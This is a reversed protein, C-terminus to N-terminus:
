GGAAVRMENIKVLANAFAEDVSDGYGNLYIPQTTTEARIRVSWFTKNPDRKINELEWRGPLDRLADAIAADVVTSGQSTTADPRM